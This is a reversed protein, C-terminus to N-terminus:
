SELSGIGANPGQNPDWRSGQEASFFLILETSRKFHVELHLTIAKCYQTPKRWVDVNMLRLHVCTGEKKFRGDWM